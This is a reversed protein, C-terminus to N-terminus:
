CVATGARLADGLEIVDPEHPFRASMTRYTRTIEEMGKQDGTRSIVRLAARLIAVAGSVEGSALLTAAVRVRHAAVWASQRVDPPLADLGTSITDAAAAYEAPEEALYALILGRQATLYEAGYFYLGDPDGSGGRSLSEEARGVARLAEQKEGMIALARGSQQIAVTRTAPATALGAAAESLSAMDSVDGTVWALHGRMSLATAARDDDQAQMGLRLAQDYLTSARDHNGVATNLWGVFQAADSATYALTRAKLGRTEKLLRLMLALNETAAGIVAKAGLLDEIRRQGALTAAVSDVVAGDVRAPNRAAMVLREREDPDSPFRTTTPVEVAPVSGFLDAEPFDFVRAYAARYRADTLEVGGSEWRKIYTVFSSVEPKQHDDVADHLFRAMRRVGWGRREREARLRTAQARRADDTM